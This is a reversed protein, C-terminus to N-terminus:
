QLQILNVRNHVALKLKVLNVIRILIHVATLGKPTTRMKSQRQEGGEGASTASAQNSAIECICM